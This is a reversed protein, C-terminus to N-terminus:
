LDGKPTRLMSGPLSDIGQKLRSEHAETPPVPMFSSMFCGHFCNAM